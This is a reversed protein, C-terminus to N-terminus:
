LICLAGLYVGGTDYKGLFLFLPKIKYLAKINPLSRYLRRFSFFPCIGFKDYVVELIM